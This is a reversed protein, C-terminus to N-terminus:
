RVEEDEIRTITILNGDSNTTFCQGYNQKIRYLRTRVMQHAQIDKLTHTKSEGVCLNLTDSIIKNVNAERDLKRQEKKIAVEM